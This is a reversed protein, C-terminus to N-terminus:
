IKSLIEINTVKAIALCFQNLDEAFSMLSTEKLLEGEANELNNYLIISNFVDKKTDTDIDFMYSLKMLSLGYDSFYLKENKEKIFVDMVDGDEHYFPALIKYMSNNIKEFNILNNYSSKLTELDIM